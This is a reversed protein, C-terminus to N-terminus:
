ETRRRRTLTRMYYVIVIVSTIFAAWLLLLVLTGLHAVQLLVMIFGPSLILLLVLVAGLLRSCSVADTDPEPVVRDM